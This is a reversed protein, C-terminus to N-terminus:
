MEQTEGAVSEIGRDGNSADFPTCIIQLVLVIGPVLPWIRLIPTPHARSIGRLCYKVNMTGHMMLSLASYFGALHVNTKFDYFKLKV